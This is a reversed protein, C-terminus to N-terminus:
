TAHRDEQLWSRVLQAVLTPDSRAINTLEKQLRAEELEAERAPLSKLQQEILAHQAPSVPSVSVLSSTQRRRGRLILWVLAVVILPGVVMGVIRAISLLMERQRAEESASASPQQPKTSFPLSTLTVVDGRGVDLGAATAVLKSIADGRAPDSLADSDLAVAVSLRKVGGPSRVTKEVMRSLEYTTSTDRREGQSQGKGSDGAQQGPYTPINSDTGPVGGAPPQSGSLQSNTEVLQRQSRIQPTKQQPSYTETNAEYQ